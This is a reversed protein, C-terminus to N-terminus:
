LAAVVDIEVRDPARPLMVVIPNKFFGGCGLIAASVYLTDDKLGVRIPGGYYAGDFSPVVNRVLFPKLGPNADLLAASGLLDTAQALDLAVLPAADLRSAAEARRNAPIAGIASRPVLSTAGSRGRTVWTQYADTAAPCTVLPADAYRPLSPRGHAQPALLLALIIASM